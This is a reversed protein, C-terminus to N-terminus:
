VKCSRDKYRVKRQTFDMRKAELATESKPNRKDVVESGPLVDRSYALRERHMGQYTCYRIEEILREVQAVNKQVVTQTVQDSTRHRGITLCDVNKISVPPYPFFFPLPLNFFNALAAFLLSMRSALFPSVPQLFRTLASWSLTFALRTQWTRDAIDRTFYLRM